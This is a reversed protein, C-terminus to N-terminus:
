FSKFDQGPGYLLYYQANFLVYLLLLVLLGFHMFGTKSIFGSGSLYHFAVLMTVLVLFHFFHMETHTRILKMEDKM